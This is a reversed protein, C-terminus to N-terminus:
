PRKVRFRTGQDSFIVGSQTITEIELGSDISEGERYKQLDILVFRRAPQASYVHVDIDPRSVRARFEVPMDTWDTAVPEPEAAHDSSMGSVAQTPTSENAVPQVDMTEVKALSTPPPPSMEITSPLLPDKGAVEPERVRRPVDPVTVPAPAVAPPAIDRPVPAVAATAPNEGSEAVVVTAPPRLFFAVGIAVNLLLLIGVLWPWRVRQLAPREQQVTELDPVAGLSRERESKRLADLIYSM